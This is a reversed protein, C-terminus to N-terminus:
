KKGKIGRGGKELYFFGHDSRLRFFTLGSCPLFFNTKLPTEDTVLIVVSGHQDQM